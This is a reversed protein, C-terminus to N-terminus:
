HGKCNDCVRSIRKGGDKRAFQDLSKALGCSGCTQKAEVRPQPPIGAKLM